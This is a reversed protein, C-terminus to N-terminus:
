SRTADVILAALETSAAQNLPSHNLMLRYWVVGYVIDILMEIAVGDKLEGRNDARLFIERLAARRSFLFRDRFQEAFIPDVLAHSMLGILIPRQGRQRFTSRLFTELDQELSGKDPVAISSVAKEVLADLVVEAKSDWWRYITQKGWGPM